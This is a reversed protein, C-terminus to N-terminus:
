RIVEKKIRLIKIALKIPDEAIVRIMGEKGMGGKDYIIDPVSGFEKIAKNVGWELTHGEKSKVEEPEDMRDFYAISMGLERCADIIEDSYRINMVARKAPDHRMVTIVISGIHKSVGFNPRSLTRINKGFRIIRGPIGIVDDISCASSLGVGLNSQVEPILAGIEGNDLLKIAEEVEKMLLYREKDRSLTFLHGPINLGKGISLSHQITTTIFDKAGRVADKLGMDRALGATIAAAFTCGTGHIDGTKIRESEYSTYGDGDYLIDVAEEKLHGGKILINNVGMGRIKEIAKKMDGIDRIKIGSLDEAEPINPTILYSLPFLRKILTEKAEPQLLPNGGKAYMVPDVVLYKIRYAAICESIKEIIGANSLMGTKVADIDIDGAVSNIQLAVFDPPLDHIGQVGVTNQATISTVVSLGYVGFAAFTKLDAQIGAGGCPDSGAITLAKKM